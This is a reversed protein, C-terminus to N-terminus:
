TLLDEVSTADLVRVSLDELATAPLGALKDSAWGPLTGFRKEIQRRLITVEGEQRGEQRGELLGKKFVPGLVDHELISATIPMDRAERKVTEGLRRLGALIFLQALATEREAAALGAIREVIKHVAGRHDRLRALIAIVNDGVDASKLLGEGDLTRIDILRYQFSVDPGHLGSEMKLRPRGVYLVIQKPFRGFLRFVGLCYEAMRLPMAGENRSQLEVHILGGAATEGLLDLRLNRVKPLEVDLWKAVATGALERLTRAAPGKLLLKLAVDYDQV